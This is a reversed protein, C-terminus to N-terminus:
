LNIYLSHEYVWQAKKIRIKMLSRVSKVCESLTDLDEKERKTWQNAYGEVFNMLIKFNHRWNISKPECYTPGKAFVDRLSTYTIFKLDGTIVHGAPNYILPSRACTCDPSKSKFDDINLDHLVHKYNFIKTAIPITYAYVIIPVSQDKFYPPIKSKVSKHHLINGLNIGDLGKNAFSLKQFSPKDREDKKIGVCTILKHGAIDLVIATLKYENLKPNTVHKYL